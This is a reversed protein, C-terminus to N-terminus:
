KFYIYIKDYKRIFNEKLYFKEKEYENENEYSQTLIIIDINFFSINIKFLKKLLDIIIM